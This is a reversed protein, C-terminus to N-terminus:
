DGAALGYGHSLPDEFLFIRPPFYSLLAFAVVLLLLLAVGALRLAPGFPAATLLRYSLWQGLVVAAVFTLIDAVFYDRGLVLQYGYFLAAITVPMAFLGFGKGPWFNHTLRRITLYELLAWFLGPWFALKFHEWTSENVAALWAIPRWYGAWAYAFHLVSGAVLIFVIGALEWRWITRRAPGTVEGRGASM